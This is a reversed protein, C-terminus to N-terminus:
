FRVTGEVQLRRGTTETADAPVKKILDNLFLNASFLLYDQPSWSTRISHSRLNTGSGHGGALSFPDTNWGPPVRSYYAGFDSDLPEEWWADAELWHRRYAVQWQGAKGARGLSLGASWGRNDTPAASNRLFDASFTVPFKGPYGPVHALTRTVATEGYLPRYGHVLVGTRSRSNGRHVNAVNAATLQSAHTVGLWGGGALGSWESSWERSWRARAAILWPDRTVGTIEDLMYQGAALWLQDRPSVQVSLEQTLGEPTYDNDFLLRSPVFFLNEVKGLSLAAKVGEGLTPRWRLFAQDFFAFKKSGNDAFSFQASGPTGGFNPNLDGASIRLGAEFGSGPTALFGVRVQTLLQDRTAAAAAEYSTSAFRFRLDGTLRVTPEARSNARPADTARADRAPADRGLERRLTANEERLEGVVAELRRLREEVSLGEAALAVAGGVLFLALCARVRPQSIM